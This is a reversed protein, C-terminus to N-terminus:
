LTEKPMQDHVFLTAWHGVLEQFEMSDDIVRHGRAVWLPASILTRSPDEAVLDHGQPYDLKQRVWEVRRVSAPVLINPRFVPSVSLPNFPFWTPFVRSRFVPDCLVAVRITIGLNKAENAFNEFGVGCGWSYAIVMVEASDWAKSNRLLFRALGGFNENWDYPTIITLDASELPQLRKWAKEIGTEAMKTERFGM